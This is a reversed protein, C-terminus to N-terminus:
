NPRYIASGRQKQFDTGRRFTKTGRERERERERMKRLQGILRSDFGPKRTDNSKFYLTDQLSSSSKAKALVHKRPSYLIWRRIQLILPNDLLSLFLIRVSWFLSQLPSEVEKKKRERKREKEKKGRQPCPASRSWSEGGGAPNALIFNM